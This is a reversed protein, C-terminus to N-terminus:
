IGFQLFLSFVIFNYTFHVLTASTFAKLYKKQLGGCKLFVVCFVLGMVGQAPVGIWGGHAHGFLFSLAVSVIIITSNSANREIFICLPLRYILEEIAAFVPLLCFLLLTHDRILRMLEADEFPVGLSVYIIELIKAFVLLAIITTAFFVSLTWGTPEVRLWKILASM